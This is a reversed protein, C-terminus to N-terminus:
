RRLEQDGCPISGSLFHREIKVQKFKIDDGGAKDPHFKLALKRYSSEIDKLPANPTTELIEYCNIMPRQYSDAM